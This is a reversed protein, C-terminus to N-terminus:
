TTLVEPIESGCPFNDDNRGVWSIVGETTNDDRCLLYVQAGQWRGLQGRIKAGHWVQVMDYKGISTGCIWRHGDGKYGVVEESAKIVNGFGYPYPDRYKEQM